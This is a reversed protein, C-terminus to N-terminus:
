PAVPAPAHHPLWRLWRRELAVAVLDATKGLLAYLVISMVVVDTQMFERANMALYGIGATAGLTEAVILTLWMLGLAFRLGVLISPLAGPLLIHVFRQFPSLGYVRGLEVLGRDASRVGHLTNVYIPFFVGIAVLFIKATEDLGFWLIVLPILALHPVNRIMQVPTDLLRHAVRSTGNLVGLVFGASGGILLGIAARQFSVWLHHVLEGTSLLRIAANAVSLPPPLVSHALAGTSSSVQWAGVLLMPVVWPLVRDLPGGPSHPVPKRAPAPPALASSAPRPHETLEALV